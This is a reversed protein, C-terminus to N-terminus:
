ADHDVHKARMKTWMSLALYVVVVVFLYMSSFAATESPSHVNGTFLAGILYFPFISLGLVTPGDSPQRAASLWLLMLPAALVAAIVLRTGRSKM